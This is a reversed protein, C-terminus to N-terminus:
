APNRITELCKDEFLFQGIKKAEDNGVLAVQITKVTLALIGTPIM